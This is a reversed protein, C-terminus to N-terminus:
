HNFRYFFTRRDGGEEMRPLDVHGDPYRNGISGGQFLQRNIIHVHADFVLAEDHIRQARESVQANLGAVTSFLIVFHSFIAAFKM